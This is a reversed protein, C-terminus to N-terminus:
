ASAKAEHTRFWLLRNSPSLQWVFTLVALILIIAPGYYHGFYSSKASFNSLSREGFAIALVMLEPPLYQRTRRGHPFAGFAAILLCMGIVRLGEAMRQHIQDLIGNSYAGSQEAQRILTLTDRQTLPNALNVPDILSDIALDYRSFEIESFKGDNPSAQLRGDRLSIQYGEEGIIIEAREALYTRRLDPDRRDDAFFDEIIGNENRGGIRLVVGDSIDTFRGPTLSQSLLDVAIQATWVNAAKRSAPEAWHAVFMAVLAGTVSFIALASWIAKVRRSSHITHLEHSTQMASLARALGIGMCIYIIQRSLPPTTLFSQGFLTYISQGKETVLDFLRLMQTLWVLFTAVLFLSLAGGAFRIILYRSLHSM